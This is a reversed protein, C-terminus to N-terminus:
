QFERPILIALPRQVDTIRQFWRTVGCLGGYVAHTTVVVSLWETPRWSSVKKRLTIDSTNQM